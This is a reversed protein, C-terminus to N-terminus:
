SNQHGRSARKLRLQNTASASFLLLDRDEYDLVKTRPERGGQPAQPHTGRTTGMTHTGEQARPGSKM